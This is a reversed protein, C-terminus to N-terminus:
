AQLVFRWLRHADRSIGIRPTARVAAVEGEQPPLLVFRGGTLAAGNDTNDVALAQCVKGPGNTLLKDPQNNRRQRMKEIGKDPIISRILLGQGSGASGAVLNMCWHIGYSFYVYVHGAGLFMASNRLTKGRHTHSAKDEPTYAETEAIVGGALSGDEDRVYLHWGILHEAAYVSGCRLIDM